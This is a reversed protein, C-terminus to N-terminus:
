NDSHAAGGMQALGVIRAGDPLLGMDTFLESVASLVDAASLEDERPPPADGPAADWVADLKDPLGAVTVALAHVVDAVTLNAPRAGFSIDVNLCDPDGDTSLIIRIIPQPTM